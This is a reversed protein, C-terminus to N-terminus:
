DRNIKYKELQLRHYKMFIEIERNYQESNFNTLYQTEFQLDEIEWFNYSMLYLEVNDEGVGAIFKSHFNGSYKQALDGEVADKVENVVQYISDCAVSLGDPNLYFYDEGKEKFINNYYENVRDNLTITKGKFRSQYKRFVIYRFPNLPLPLHDDSLNKDYTAFYVGVDHFISFYESNIFPVVIDIKYGRRWWRLFLRPLISCIDIGLSLFSSFIFELYDSGCIESYIEWNDGSGQIFFILDADIPFDCKSCPVEFRRIFSVGEIAYFKDPEIGRSYILNELTDDENSNDFFDSAYKTKKCNPCAYAGAIPNYESKRIRKENDYSIEIQGGIKFM